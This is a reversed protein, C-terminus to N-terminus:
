PKQAQDGAISKATKDMDENDDCDNNYQDSDNLPSFRHLHYGLVIKATTVNILMAITHNCM